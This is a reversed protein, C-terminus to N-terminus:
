RSKRHPPSSTQVSDRFDRRAMGIHRRRLERRRRHNRKGRLSMLEHKMLMFLLLPMDGREHNCSKHAGVINQWATRRGGQSRPIVHEATMQDNGRFNNAWAVCYVCPDATVVARWTPTM